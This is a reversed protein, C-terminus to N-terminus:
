NISFFVCVSWFHKSRAVLKISFQDSFAAAGRSARRWAAKKNPMQQSGVCATSTAYEASVVSSRLRSYNEKQAATTFSFLKAQLYPLLYIGPHHEGKPIQFFNLPQAFLLFDLTKYRYFYIM